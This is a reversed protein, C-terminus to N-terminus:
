KLTLGFLDLVLKRTKGSNHTPHLDTVSLPGVHVLTSVFSARSQMSHYLFPADSGNPESWLRPRSLTWTDLHASASNDLLLPHFINNHTPRSVSSMQSFFVSLFFLSWQVQVCVTFHRESRERAPLCYFHFSNRKASCNEGGSPITPPVGTMTVWGVDSKVPFCFFMCVCVSVCLVFDNLSKKKCKSAVIWSTTISNQSFFASGKPNLTIALATKPLKVMAQKNAWCEFVENQLTNKNRKM